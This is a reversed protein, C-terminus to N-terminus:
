SVDGFDLTFTAGDGPGGGPVGPAVGVGLERFEGDLIIRRHPPSKMFAEFISAPTSDSGTGWGIDEGLAWHSSGGLYGAERARDSISAGDPTNHAFYGRAVMDASHEDATANLRADSRLPPLGRAARTANVLCRLAARVNPEPAAAAASRTFSCGTGQAVAFSPMACLALASLAAALPVARGLGMRM